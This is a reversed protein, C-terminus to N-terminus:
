STPPVYRILLSGFRLDYLFEIWANTTSSFSLVYDDASSWQYRTSLQGTLSGLVGADFTVVSANHRFVRTSGSTGQVSVAIKEGASVNVIGPGPALDAPGPHTVNAAPLPTGISRGPSLSFNVELSSTRQSGVTVTIRLVTYNMRWIQYFLDQVGASGAGRTIGTQSCGVGCLGAPHYLFGNATTDVALGPDSSSANFAFRVPLSSPSRLEWELAYTTSPGAHTSGVSWNVYSDVTEGPIAPATYLTMLPVELDAFGHSLVEIHRTLTPPQSYLLFVLGGALVLALGLIGAVLIAFRRSRPSESPSLPSPEVPQPSTVIGRPVFRVTPIRQQGLPQLMNLKRGQAEALYSQVRYLYQPSWDRSDHFISRANM